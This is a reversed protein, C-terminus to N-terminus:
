VYAVTPFALLVGLVVSSCLFVNLLSAQKTLTSESCGEPLSLPAANFCVTVIYGSSFAFFAVLVVLVMDDSSPFWDPDSAVIFFLPVLMLRVFAFMSISMASTMSLLLATPRALVDAFLRTFFLVQPLMPSDSKVQTFYSGITMSSTVTVLISFCISKCDEFIEWNSMTVGIEEADDGDITGSESNYGDLLAGSNMLSISTSAGILTDRRFMSATVVQRVFLLWIFSFYCLADLIFITGFFLLKGDDKDDRGFNTSLSVILVLIGSAQLGTSVAVKLGSDDPSVFSAMQLLSGQIISGAVGIFFSLVLLTMLSNEFSVGLILFSLLFGVSGRFFFTARSGFKRDYELDWISQSISLPLLPLFIVLNLM